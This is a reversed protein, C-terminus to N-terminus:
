ALINSVASYCYFMSLYWSNQRLSKLRNTLLMYYRGNMFLLPTIISVIYTPPLSDTRANIINVCFKFSQVVNLNLEM